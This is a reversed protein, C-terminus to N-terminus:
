KIPKGMAIIRKKAYYEAHQKSFVQFFM